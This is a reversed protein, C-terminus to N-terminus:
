RWRVSSSPKQSTPKAGTVVAGRGRSRSRRRRSRGGARATGRRQGVVEELRRQLVAMVAERVDPLRQLLDVLAHALRIRAAGPEAQHADGGVAVDRETVAEGAGVVCLSPVTRSPMSRPLLLLREELRVVDGVLGVAAGAPRPRDAGAAAIVFRVRAVAISWAASGASSRSSERSSGCTGPSRRRARPACDRSGARLEIVFLTGSFTEHLMQCRDIALGIADLRCRASRLPHRRAAAPPGGCCGSGGCMGM